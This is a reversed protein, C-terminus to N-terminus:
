FGFTVRAGVQGVPNKKLFDWGGGAYVEFLGRRYGLNATVPAMWSGDYMMKADLEFFDKKPEIRTPVYVTNTVTKTYTEIYDLNPEVGSIKAFYEDSKYEKITREMLIYQISDKIIIQPEPIESDIYVPYYVLKDKYVTDPEPADFKNSDIQVVTTTDTHKEYWDVTKRVGKRQGLFFAGLIAAIVVAILILKTKM